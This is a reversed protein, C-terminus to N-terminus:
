PKRAPKFAYIHKARRLDYTQVQIPFAGVPGHITFEIGCKSCLFMQSMGGSPGPIFRAGCEEHIQKLRTHDLADAQDSM